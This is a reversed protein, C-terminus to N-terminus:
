APGDIVKSGFKRNLSGTDCLAESRGLDYGRDVPRVSTEKDLNQRAGRVTRQPFFALAPSWFDHPAQSPCASFGRVPDVMWAGCCVSNCCIGEVDLEATNTPSPLEPPQRTRPLTAVRNRFFSGANSRCMVPCLCCRSDQGAASTLEARHFRFPSRESCIQPVFNELTSRGQFKICAITTLAVTRIM